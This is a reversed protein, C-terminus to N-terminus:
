SNEKEKPLGENIYWDKQKQLEEGLKELTPDPKIEDNKEAM